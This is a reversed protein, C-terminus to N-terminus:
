GDLAAAAARTPDFPSGDREGQRVFFRRHADLWWARTRDRRRGRGRGRALAFDDEVTGLTGVRIEVTRLVCRAM